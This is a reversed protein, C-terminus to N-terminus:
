KPEPGQKGNLRWFRHEPSEAGAPPPTAPPAYPNNASAGSVGTSNISNRRTVVNKRALAVMDHLVKEDWDSRLAKGALDLSHDTPSNGGMYVAGLDGTVDAIQADLQTAISAADKGYAGGKAAALNARNLIPFRGAKWQSALADVSDLLDPLQGIAQNLRLQQTSNLSAIHKQTAKWDLQATSLHYGRAALESAVAGQVQRGYQSIDPPLDGRMVADAIGKPDTQAMMVNTVPRKRNADENQYQTFTGKYGTSAADQWEKYAASHEEKAPATYLAKGDPGVLTSGAAVSTPGREAAKQQIAQYYPARARVQEMDARIQEPTMTQLKQAYADAQAAEKPFQEKHLAVAALASPLLSDDSKAHTLAYDVTHGMHDLRKENLDNELKDIDAKSKASDDFYKQLSPLADPNHVTAYALSAEPVGKGERLADVFAQQTAQKRQLDLTQQQHQETQARREEALAQGAQQQNRLQLIQSLSEFPTNIRPAQLTSYISADAPM